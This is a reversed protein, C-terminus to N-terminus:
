RKIYRIEQLQVSFEYNPTTTEPSSTSSPIADMALEFSENEVSNSKSHGSDNVVTWDPDSSEKDKNTSPCRLESSIEQGATSSFLSM